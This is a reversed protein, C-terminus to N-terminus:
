DAKLNEVLEVFRSVGVSVDTLGRSVDAISEQGKSAVGNVLTLHHDLKEIMKGNESVVKAIESTAETTRKALQRVEDAVVAFGRGTDGARAAEIAANLALLNTQEAIAGITTVIKNISKSQELLLTGIASSERIQEAIKESTENAGELVNVAMETIQSTEESTAAAMEVATQAKSIKATIDSAFKIVKYVQGKENKIPNYTAEVWVTKNGATKRKFRGSSFSGTKLDKWFNPNEDYFQDYCFIRHHKGKVDQLSYGMFNLFNTNATIITGDPEFEIVALSHDLADLIANKSDLELKKPTVDMCVKVVSSIKGSKDAVPFYSAELYVAQGAKNKRRFNGNKAEGRALESWFTQYEQSHVYDSECFIKHHKGKIEDLTYGAVHLFINNADQIYGDPSFVIYGANKKLAKLVDASSVIEPKSEFFEVPVVKKGFWM